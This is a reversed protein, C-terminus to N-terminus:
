KHKEPSYVQDQEVPWYETSFEGTISVQHPFSKCSSAAMPHRADTNQSHHQGYILQAQTASM